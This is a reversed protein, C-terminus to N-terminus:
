RAAAFDPFLPPRRLREAVLPRISVWAPLAEAGPALAAVVKGRRRLAPFPATASLPGVSLGSPAESTVAIAYRGDWVVPAGPKAPLTPLGDRGAERSFAFRGSKLEVVAGALTRKFRAPGALMADVLAALREHRPPYDDGGVALLLRTVARLQVERPAAALAAPELWAIGWADVDGLLASAAADIADAADALRIATAALATADIGEGALLRRMRARDFRPDDNMPDVVPTLKAAATAAALRSRPVGLFPRVITVGGVELVPRMAALGFVGSGRRLRLLFTEALDDRHHAVALHTAGIDRCADLLLRYRAARAAAEIDGTPRAGARTLIRADLGRAKAIKAVGEAEARSGKRLRHDVTLVVVRRKGRWRDVADLLALSDAGGSVALAILGAGALPAFLSDLEEDALPADDASPRRAARM